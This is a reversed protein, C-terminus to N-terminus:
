SPLCRHLVYTYGACIDMYFICAVNSGGQASHMSHGQVADLSTQLRPNGHVLEPITAGATKSTQRTTKCSVRDVLRLDNRVDLLLRSVLTRQLKCPSEKQPALM